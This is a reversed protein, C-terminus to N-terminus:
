NSSALQEIPLLARVLTGQGPVSEVRCEGGLVNAREQMGTLGVCRHDQNICTIDFGVGWDQVTIELQGNEQTIGVQLRTSQSYKRSNNLAEQTIRFATIEIPAPLREDLLNANFELKCQMEDAIKAALEQMAPILGLDDLLAPRLGEILHRGEVIADSLHELGRDFSQSAKELDNNQQRTFNSLQLRAGVLRQILGDHLDYAIMRREEEQVNILRELLNQRQRNYLDITGAMENFAEALQGTEDSTSVPVPETLEGQAFRDVGKRLDRIPATLDSALRVAIAVAIVAALILISIAATRFQWVSAFITGSPEDHIIVWYTSPATPAPYVPTYVLVNKRISHGSQGSLIDSSTNPYDSQLRFGTALDIPGGWERSTDPNVLYYGDQDVLMTKVENQNAQRVPELINDGFINAIVIGRRNGDEDFVPAAYRIVPKHPKEIEDRERNLDLPSVFVEGKDFQMTEQFYYRGSKDQLADEPIPRPSIGDSDIRIFEQGDETLYRIQYCIGCRHSFATFDQKVQERWYTAATPDNNARSEILAQLSGLESLFLINGQANNLFDNIQGAQDSTEHRAKSLASDQLIQSTIWNGYLGTGILPLLVVILFAVLLKNQIRSFLKMTPPYYYL